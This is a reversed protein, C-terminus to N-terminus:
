HAEPGLFRVVIMGIRRGSMRIQTHVGEGSQKASSLIDCRGNIVSLLEFVADFLQLYKGHGKSLRLWRPKNMVESTKKTSTRRRHSLERSTETAKSKDNITAGGRMDNTILSHERRELGALLGKHSSISGGGNDRFANSTNLTAYIITYLPTIYLELVYKINGISMGIEKGNTLKDVRAFCNLILTISGVVQIRSMMTNTDSECIAM